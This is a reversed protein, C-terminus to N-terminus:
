SFNPDYMLTMNTTYCPYAPYMCTGMIGMEFNDCGCVIFYNFFNYCGNCQAYEETDPCDMAILQTNAITILLLLCILQGTKVNKTM